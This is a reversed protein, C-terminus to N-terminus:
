FSPIATAPKTRLNGRSMARLPLAHWFMKRNRIREYSGFLATGFMLDGLLTNRFFPLAAAYCAALGTATHPYWPSLAWVAFNTAFYFFFSGAATGLIFKRWKFNAGVLSGFCAAIAFSGYVAFMLRWDYFGIMMDSILMAGLVIPISHKRPLRAGLFLALAGIPAFNAPHPLLRFSVAAAALVGALFLNMINWFTTIKASRYIEL